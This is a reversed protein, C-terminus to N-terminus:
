NGQVEGRRSARVEEAGRQAEETDRTKAATASLDARLVTNSCLTASYKVEVNDTHIKLTFVKRARADL